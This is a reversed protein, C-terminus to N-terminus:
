QDASACSLVAREEVMRERSRGVGSEDGRVGEWIRPGVVIVPVCVTVLNLM